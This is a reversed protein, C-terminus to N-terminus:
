AKTITYSSPLEQGTLSKNMNFYVEFMAAGPILGGAGLTGIMDGMSDMSKIVKNHQVQEIMSTKQATVYLIDETLKGVQKDILLGQKTLNAIEIPRKGQRDLISEKLEREQETQTDIEKDLKRLEKPLKAGRDVIAIAQDFTKSVTNTALQGYMAILSDVKKEDSIAFTNIADQINALTQKFFDNDKADTLLEGYLKRIEQKIEDYTELKTPLTAEAM